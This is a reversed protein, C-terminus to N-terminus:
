LKGTSTNTNIAEKFSVLNVKKSNLLDVITLLDKVSRAIRSFDHIYITDGERVFDLMAKLETRNEISKGSVKQIFIKDINNEKMKHLQRDENQTVSSVRVYGVKM